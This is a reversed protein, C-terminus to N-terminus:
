VLYAGLYGNADHQITLFGLNLSAVSSQPVEPEESRLNGLNSGGIRYANLHSPCFPPRVQAAVIPERAKLVVRPRHALGLRAVKLLLQGSKQVECYNALVNPSRVVQVSIYQM